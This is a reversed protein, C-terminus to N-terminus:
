LNEGRFKLQSYNRNRQLETLHPDVAKAAERGDMMITANLGNALGREIERLLEVVEPDFGPQGGAGAFGADIMRFLNAQQSETLIMENPLARIDVENHMPPDIIWSPLGGTHFKPPEVIGGTHHEPIRGSGGRASFVREYRQQNIIIEKNITRGLESNLVASSQILESIKSKVNELETIQSEIADVSRRYEETNRQNVPTTKELEARKSILKQIETEVIQIEEGRKANIGVQQLELEVMQRKVEDLAGIQKQIEDLELSKDYVLQHSEARNKKISELKGEELLLMNNLNEIELTDQNQKAKALDSELTGIRRLHEEEEKDYSLLLAKEENISKMLREEDQLYETMNAEAQAKKAELELRIMEIQEANFSKAKDTNELLINGQESLVTNSEPVTEIIQGNLDILRSLEDNSLGSKERIGDQEEKLRALIEPDVTQQMLSNIDVFRALEDASLKTKERLSDYENINAELAKQSEQMAIVNDLTIEELENHYVLSSAIAGGLLSVGTIIWGMPGMAAIALGLRGITSIFLGLAGTVGAFALTSNITASDIENFINVVEAGKRAIDTLYPLFGSGVSIGFSELAGMLEEFAGKFNNMMIDAAEEAAGASNELAETYEDLQAVGGEMLSIMGSSAETGVLKAVTAVKEADTMENTAKILDGIVDSLSKAEGSSDRMSFGLEAMMEAQAEAPNNLALLAARLATGASSGDLGANTMIGVAASVEELSMGLTNAVPGVYKLAYGMDNVSAASVNATMALVDAVKTAEAAELQFSNLAAAVVGSTLALDSGSAEAAAIVGPMAALIDNANFGMAAMDEFAVAVESASKSTNAGLDLATKNLDEFEEDTAGSIARVRSMQYEFDAATKISFGTAATFAAMFALAATQLRDLDESLQQTSSSTNGLQQQSQQLNQNMQQTANGTQGAQTQTQQLNTNLQQASNSAQNAQSQTQQLNQNLQQTSNATQNAQTQTQQLNQNLQQTTTGTQNIQTQAQQMSQNLQQTSDDTQSIQSQTQQLTEGAQEASAALNSLQENSQQLNESLQQTTDSAAGISSETAEISEGTQQASTSTNDLQQQTQQLDQNLSQASSGATNIQAQTEELSQAVQEVSDSTQAMQNQSQQMGQNLQQLNSNLQQTSDGTQNFQNQTQQMSQNVQQATGEISGLQQRAEDMSQSFQQAELLLRARLDGLDTAM